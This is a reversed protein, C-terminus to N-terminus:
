SSHNDGRGLAAALSNVTNRQWALYDTGAPLM